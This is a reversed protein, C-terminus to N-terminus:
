KTELKAEQLPGDYQYQMLVLEATATGVNVINYSNKPPVYFCDGREVEMESTHVHVRLQGSLVVFVMTNRDTCSHGKETGRRVRLASVLHYPPRLMRGYEVRPQGEGGGGSRNLGRWKLSRFSSFIEVMIEKNHHLSGTVINAVCKSIGVVPKILTTEVYEDHHNLANAVNAGAAALDTDTEDFNKSCHVNENENEVKITHVRSIAMNFLRDFIERNDDRVRDVFSRDVNAMNQIFVACKYLVDRSLRDMHSVAAAEYAMNFVNRENIPIDRIHNDCIDVLPTIIYKDAVRLLGFLQRIMANENVYDECPSFMDNNNNYIFELFKQFSARSCDNVVIPQTDGDITGSIFFQAQFVPSVAALPFKHASIIACESGGGPDELRFSVDHPIITGDTLLPLLDVNIM